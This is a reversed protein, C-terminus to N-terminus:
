GPSRRIGKIIHYIDAPRVDNRKAISKIKEESSSVEIKLKKLKTLAQELDIHMKSCFSELSDLEAHGYPPKDEARQVWSGKIYENLDLLYAIPPIHWLVSAAIFIALASSIAFEIRLRIGEALKIRIHGILPKWNFYIHFAGTVIFFIGSVIHIGDWHEKGLGIFRWETWYAVRGHPEIYLVLGTLSLILFGWAGLLSVIARGKIGHKKKENGQM